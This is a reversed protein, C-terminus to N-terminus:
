FPHSCSVSSLKIFSFLHFSITPTTIEGRELHYQKDIAIQREKSAEKEMDATIQNEKSTIQKEKSTIQNEKAEIQRNNTSMENSIQKVRIESLTGNQIQEKYGNNEDRLVVIEDRLVVIEARLVLIDKERKEIDAM